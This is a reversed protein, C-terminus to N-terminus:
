SPRRFASRSSPRLFSQLAGWSGTVQPFGAGVEASRLAGLTVSPVFEVRGSPSAVQGLPSSLASRLDFSVRPALRCRLLCSHLFHTIAMEANNGANTFFFPQRDRPSCSFVIFSGPTGSGPQVACRHALAGSDLFYVGERRYEVVSAECDSGRANGASMRNIACIFRRKRPRSM